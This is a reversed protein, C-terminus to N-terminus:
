YSCAAVAAVVAGRVAAAGAAGMVITYHNVDPVQVVTRHDPSEAAWAQALAPPQMPNPENLLGRPACMLTTQVTLRHAAAGMEFMDQADGRIAPESVSSHLQPPEGILDYDAYAALDADAVDSGAFAPHERWWARYSERSDFSMKLRAIAPGLFADLFQQPDVGEIGPLTLGGDILMLKDVREAHDAALRACIYAGLSHGLLLPLQTIGLEDLLGILDAVHAAIGYPASLQNSAGRGRLDPAILSARGALERAVAIWARSTGTIGHVALVVPLSADGDGFRVAALEGGAVPAHLSDILTM